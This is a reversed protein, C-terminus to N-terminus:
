FKLRGYDKQWQKIMKNFEAQSMKEAQVIDDRSPTGSEFRYSPAYTINFPSMNNKDIDLGTNTQSVGSSLAPIPTYQKGTIYEDVRQALMKLASVIMNSQGSLASHIFFGLKDWLISLPLIAEEGAEGGAMVSTGNIGFVTPDTMIGGEKYWEVGFSPVKPPNISFEGNIKFHPLKLKPLEWHFNFFGKIKEIAGSVINKAAELKESFSNKIGDLIGVVKDKVASLKGGTAVDIANFVGEVVGKLANLPAMALSSLAGFAGSLINKLGDLAQQWNGTFVGQVFDIVGQFVQKVGDIVGQVSAWWGDFVGKIFAFAVPFKDKFGDVANIIAVKIANFKEGLWAGLQAAKEKVLDWNKYLLTGIIIAGAIAAIVLGIPSTLFAIAAGFVGTVTAGIGAVTNWATAAATSAWQAVAHAKEAVILGYKKAISIGTLIHDKAYLAHIAVTLGIDKVKAINLLTMAKIVGYIGTAMQYFKIAGVAVGIATITPLFGDWKVFADAVDSIGGVVNLLVDVIGPIAEESIFTIAPKANDFAEFLRNKIDDALTIINKFTSENEAIKDKVKSITTVVTGVLFAVVEQGKSMFDEVVEIANGVARPLEVGFDEALVIFLSDIISQGSTALAFFDMLGTLMSDVGAMFQDIPLGKVMNVFNETIDLIKSAVVNIIKIAYPGFGEVLSIKLDSVASQFKAMAGQLTNTVTADMKDLAGSSNDLNESLASWASASGDIGEKVGDLLYGFQSYYNTGAIAAMYNNKQEETMNAMASNLDIFIDKMSRMAGSSDYVSVGLEKFAKQATDKTSIRVLMSNLATGAESGKIGNNALIGLATSTEKYNMGAARAAGGCKIFADMLDSSTTNAKNNTMVIVDLYEQLEDIGVGMASMSDTVQDSTTALDAQTAEALKLVPTLAKTSTEVDWGALAMYGLADAAESATFTTAKGAERAADSLTKYEEETAGAIGSTNAMSQEFTSYESVAEGIFQGVKVAAFAATIMTAAKKATGVLQNIGNETMGLSQKLSNEVSGAIRIALEQESNGAM